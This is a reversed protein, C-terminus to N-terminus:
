DQKSKRGPPAMAGAPRKTEERGQVAWRPEVERGMLLCDNFQGDILTDRTTRGEHVWGMREYLRIAGANDARVKLNIKRVVGGREAWELMHEILARGIGLGAYAQAVSIGFEGAHRLRSRHGGDFTLSGVIADGVTAVVALSNDSEGVRALYEREESESLNPGESGFTLNDTEGGVQRLYGLVAGADEPVARRIRVARGDPLRLERETALTM